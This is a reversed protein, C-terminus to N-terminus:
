AQQATGILIFSGICVWVLRAADDVTSTSRHRIMVRKNELGDRSWTGRQQKKYITPGARRFWRRNAIARSVGPEAKRAVFTLGSSRGVCGKVVVSVLLPKTSWGDHVSSQPKWLLGLRTNVHRGRGHWKKTGGVGTVRRPFITAHEAM